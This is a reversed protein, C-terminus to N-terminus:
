KMVSCQLTNMAWSRALREDRTNTMNNFLMKVYRSIDYLIEDEYDRMKQAINPIKLIHQQTQYILDVFEEIYPNINSKDGVYLVRTGSKVSKTQVTYWCESM